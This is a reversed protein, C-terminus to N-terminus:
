LGCAELAERIAEKDEEAVSINYLEEAWIEAHRGCGMVVASKQIGAYKLLDAPILVRGQSDPQILPIM